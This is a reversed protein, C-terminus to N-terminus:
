SLPRHHEGAKLKFNMKQTNSIKEKVEQTRKKGILAARRKEKELESMPELCRRRAAEQMKKRTEDPIVKGKQVESLKKRHEETFNVKRGKLAKSIKAKVFADKKLGLSGEGGATMNYGFKGMSNHAAISVIEAKKMEDWTGANLVDYFFSKEGYKRIACSLSYQKGSRAYAIHRRIRQEVSEKTIGIYVKGNPFTLRYLIAQTMSILSRM